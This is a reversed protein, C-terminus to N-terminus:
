EVTLYTVGNEDISFTRNINTHSISLAGAPTTFQWKVSDVGWAYANRATIWWDYTANPSLGWGITFNTDTAMSYSYGGQGTLTWHVIYEVAGSVASWELNVPLSPLITDDAPALLNPAPLITGGSGTTFSWVASYPSQTTGCELYTRWYLTASPDFNRSFRFERIGGSGGSTFSILRQTFGADRAVELHLRTVNPDNGNDWRFLPILNDLSSGNAPDLLTPANLCPSGNRILPLYINFAGPDQCTVGTGQWDSVTNCDFTEVLIKTLAIQEATPPVYMREAPQELLLDHRSVRMTERPEADPNGSQPDTGPSSLSSHAQIPASPLFIGIIALFALIRFSIKKM